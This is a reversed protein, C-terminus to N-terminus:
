QQPTTIRYYRGGSGAAPDLIQILNTGPQPAVNTLNRWPSAQSLNTQYQLTYGIRPMAPFRIMAGGSGADWLQLKLVSLPDQPDTGAIYEQMNSMGDHDPDDSPIVGIHGFHAIEWDDGLGNADSDRLIITLTAVM